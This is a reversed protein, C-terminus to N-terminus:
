AKKNQFDKVLDGILYDKELKLFKVKVIKGKLETKKDRLNVFTSIYNESLGKWMDRSEDFNELVVKRTKGIEKELFARRKEFFLEKLFKARKEIVHPKVRNSFKEAPTGSRPSFPFIHLWNLPSDKIVEYTDKFDDESEGPFGVIVDAGFTAYPYIEYLKLLTEMYQERTYNRNMLKLIRNSGSQLPIHFHPVLFRSKKVFELFDEDVENVELSSFRLNFEKGQLELYEEIKWLLDTLKKKPKFDQGWKGLHIGTLVVEKYGKEVFIKIQELVIEAPVSRPAGRVYPVICYSCFSDCGDQVKVFARSHGFFNHLIVPLCVKEQSVDEVQIFVKSIESIQGEQFLKKLIEAIRFKEKQGLILFKVQNDPLNRLVEKYFKQSYCGTLVIIQPNLKLWRKIIKRTEAEAKATVICSNLILIEAERESSLFFGESLLSEVIYASEVQNVKCGLTKVFFNKRKM